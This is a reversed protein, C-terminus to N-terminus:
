RRRAPRRTPGAAPGEGRALLELLERAAAVVRRRVRAPTAGPDRGSIAKCLAGHLYGHVLEAVEGARAAPLRAPALGALLEAFRARPRELLPRLPAPPAGPLPELWILRYWGPHALAFDVQSGIFAEFAQERGARAMADLTHAMLRDLAEVLAHWVLDGLGGFYNYANTHACGLARSVERLNLGQLGGTRDVEALAAEVYRRAM